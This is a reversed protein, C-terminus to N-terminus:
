LLGLINRTFIDLSIKALRNIDVREPDPLWALLMALLSALGGVVVGQIQTLAINATGMSITQEVTDLDGM